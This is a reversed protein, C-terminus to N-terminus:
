TNKYVGAFVGVPNFRPQWSGHNRKEEFEYIYKGYAPRKRFLRPALPLHDTRV